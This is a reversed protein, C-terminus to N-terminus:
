TKAISKVVKEVASDIKTRAKNAIDNRTQEGQSMLAEVEAAGAEEAKAVAKLIAAKREDEAKGLDESRKVAWSEGMQVADVKAKEIIEKAEQEAKRIQKILEM